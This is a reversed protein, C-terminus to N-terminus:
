FREASSFHMAFHQQKLHQMHLWDGCLLWHSLMNRILSARLSMAHKIFVKYVCNVLIPIHRLTPPWHLCFSYSGKDAGGGRPPPPPPSMM